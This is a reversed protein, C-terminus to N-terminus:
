NKAVAFIIAGVAIVGVIGLAVFALTQKGKAAKAEAEMARLATTAQAEKRSAEIRDFTRRVDDKLEDIARTDLPQAMSIPALPEYFPADARGIKPATSPKKGGLKSKVVKVGKKLIGIGAAIFGLFGRENHLLNRM